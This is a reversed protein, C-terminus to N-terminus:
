YWGGRAIIKSKKIMEKKLKNLIWKYYEEWDDCAHNYGNKLIESEYAPSGETTTMDIIKKEPKKM